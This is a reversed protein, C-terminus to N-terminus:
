RRRRRSGGSKSKRMFLFGGVALLAVGGIILPTYNKAPPPAIVNTVPQSAKAKLVEMIMQENTLPKAKEKTLEQTAAAAGVKIIGQTIGGFLNSWFGGEAPKDQKPVNSALPSPSYNTDVGYNSWDFDGMGALMPQNANRISLTEREFPNGAPM